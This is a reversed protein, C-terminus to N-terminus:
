HRFRGCLNRDDLGEFSLTIASTLTSSANHADLMNGSPM